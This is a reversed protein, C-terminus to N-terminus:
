TPLPLRRRKEVQTARRLRRLLRSLAQRHGSQTMLLCKCHLFAHGSQGRFCVHATCCSMDAKHWYRVNGTFKGWPQKLVLQLESRRM